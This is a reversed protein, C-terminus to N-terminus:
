MNMADSRVVAAIAVTKARSEAVKRTSPMPSHVPVSLMALSPPNMPRAVATAAQYADNAATVLLVNLRVTIGTFGNVRYVEASPRSSPLLLVLHGSLVRM